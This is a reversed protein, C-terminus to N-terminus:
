RQHRHHPKSRSKGGPPEARLAAPGPEFPTPSRNGGAAKRHRSDSSKRRQACRPAGPPRSGQRSRRISRRPKPARNRRAPDSRSAPIRGRGHFTGLDDAHLDHRRLVTWGLDSTLQHARNRIMGPTPDFPHHHDAGVPHDPRPAGHRPTNRQPFMSPPPHCALRHDCPVARPLPGCPVLLPITSRISRRRIRSRARPIHDRLLAHNRCPDRPHRHVLDHIPNSRPRPVPRCRPYRFRAPRLGHRPASDASAGAQNWNPQKFRVESANRAEARVENYGLLHLLCGFPPLRMPTVRSPERRVSGTAGCIVKLVISLLVM